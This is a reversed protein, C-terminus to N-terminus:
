LIDLAEISRRTHEGFWDLDPNLLPTHGVANVNVAFGILFRLEKAAYFLPLLEREGETLPRENEYGAVFADNIVEDVGGIYHNAWIFSSLEAAWHDVGCNDFDLLVIDDNEVFANYIHFDGHSPGQPALAEPLAELAAAVANVAEAYWAGDGERHAVMRTLAPLGLRMQRGSDINRVRTPSFDKAILHLQGFMVGLKRAIEPNLNNAFPTGDAWQFLALHRRGEPADLPIYLRGDRTPIPAPVPVGAEDLFKLFQTEYDVDPESRFGTRWVRSAYTAGDCRILYVDNMGRTMLECQIPHPLDYAEGIRDHLSPSDLISHAIPLVQASM